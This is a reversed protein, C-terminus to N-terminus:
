RARIRIATASAAAPATLQTSASTIEQSTPVLGTGVESICWASRAGSWPPKENGATSTATMAASAVAAPGYTPRSARCSSHPRTTNTATASTNKPCFRGSPTNAPATSPQPKPRSAWRTSPAGPRRAESCVTSTARRSPPRRGSETAVM